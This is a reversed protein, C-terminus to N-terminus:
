FNFQLWVVKGRLGALTTPPGALWDADAAVLEPPVKGVFNKRLVEREQGAVASSLLVAVGVVLAERTM